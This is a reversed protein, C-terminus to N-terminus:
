FHLKITKLLFLKNPLCALVSLALSVMSLSTLTVQLSPSLFVWLVVHNCTQVTDQASTQGQDGKDELTASLTLLYPLKLPGEHVFFDEQPQALLSCLWGEQTCRKVLHVGPDRYSAAAQRNYEAFLISLGM